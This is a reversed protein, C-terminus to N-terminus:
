PKSALDAKGIEPDVPVSIHEQVVLWKGNKKRYVDTVRDTIDFPKGDHTGRGHWIMHSYAVGGVVTVMLDSVEFKVPDALFGKWNERYANAGVYQRPPILDFVFLSEDPVYCAMIGDLDRANVAKSRKDELARISAGDDTKTAASRAVALCVTTSILLSIPIATKRM